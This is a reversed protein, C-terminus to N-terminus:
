IAASTKGDYKCLMNWGIALEAMWVRYQRLKGGYRCEIVLEDNHPEFMISDDHRDVYLPKGELVEYLAETSLAFTPTVRSPRDEMQSFDLSIRDHGVAGLILYPM